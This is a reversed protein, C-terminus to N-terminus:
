NFLKSVPIWSDDESIEIQSPFFFFFTIQERLDHKTIEYVKLFYGVVRRHM